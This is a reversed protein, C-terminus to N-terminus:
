GRHSVPPRARSGSQALSLVVGHARERGARRRADRAAGLRWALLRRSCQDLVAAFYWWRGAVALYTLDGVWIQNPRTAQTRRVHNAHQGFWRHTGKTSRYVRALRARLGGCRM